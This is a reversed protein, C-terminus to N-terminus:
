LRLKMDSLLKLLFFVAVFRNKRTDNEILSKAKM